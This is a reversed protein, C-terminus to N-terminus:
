ESMRKPVICGGGGEGRFSCLRQEADGDIGRYYTNKPM